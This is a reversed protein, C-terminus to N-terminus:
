SREVADLKILDCLATLDVRRYLEEMKAQFQLDTLSRGRLDKTMEALDKLWAHITPKAADAFLDRSWLTEVLGFTVLSGLLKASFERRTPEMLPSRPLSLSGGLIGWGM